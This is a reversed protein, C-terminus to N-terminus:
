RCDSPVQLDLRGIHGDIHLSSKQGCNSCRLIIQLPAEKSALWCFAESSRTLCLSGRHRTQRPGRFEQVYAHIARMVLCEYWM